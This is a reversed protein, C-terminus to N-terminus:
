GNVRQREEKAGKWHVSVFHPFRSLLSLLFSCLLVTSTFSSFSVLWFFLPCFWASENTNQGKTNQKPRKRENVREGSLRQSVLSTVALFPETVAATHHLSPSTFPLFFRAENTWENMVKKREMESRVEDGTLLPWDPHTRNNNHKMWDFDHKWETGNYKLQIFVVVFLVSWEETV